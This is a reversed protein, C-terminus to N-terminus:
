RPRPRPKPIPTQQDGWSSDLGFDGVEVWESNLVSWWDTALGRLVFEYPLWGFGGVGWDKGYSNQFLFAGKQGKVEKIDSYGVVLVAHGAFSGSSSQAEKPRTKFENIKAEPPIAIEGTKDDQEPDYLFGCVAPFGAALVAKIQTLIVNRKDSNDQGMERPPDLRFYKVMQYNQAFSYCFQPPENDFASDDVEYSWYKEPPIGFLQLAKLTQRISAGIDFFSESFAQIHEPKMSEDIKKKQAAFDLKLSDLEKLFANIRNDPSDNESLNLSTELLKKLALTKAENRVGLHRTVKYLFRASLSALKSPSNPRDSLRNQFYEVLSTVAHSTCSNFSKQDKIESCWYSLDVIDPLAYNYISKETLQRSLSSNLPIRLPPIPEPSSPRTLRAGLYNPQKREVLNYMTDPDIQIINRHDLSKSSLDLDAVELQNLRQIEADLAAGRGHKGLPAALHLVRRAAILAPDDFDYEIPQATEKADLIGIARFIQLVEFCIPPLLPQYNTATPNPSAAILDIGSALGRLIVDIDGRLRAIASQPTISEGRVELKLNGLLASLPIATSGTSSKGFLANVVAAIPKNAKDVPKDLPDFVKELADLFDDFGRLIQIQRILANIKDTKLTYDNTDPSDPLWGTGNM